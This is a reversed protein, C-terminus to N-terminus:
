RAAEAGRLTAELRVPAGPAVVPPSSAERSPPTVATPSRRWRAQGYVDWSAPPAAPPRVAEAAPAAPESRLRLAPVVQEASAQVRRVYGNAFGREPHGTNYRSLARLLAPQPDEGPGPRYGDRLVRAGAALSRCPDFADAVTLGLALLNASNVQMLGLDISRGERLLTTALAVAEEQTPPAFSRRGTNDGIALTDFGSEVRAVAALTDPHVSPACSLALSAFTALSLIM